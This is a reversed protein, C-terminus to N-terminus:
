APKEVAPKAPSVTVRGYLFAVGGGVCVVLTGLVPFVRLAALGVIMTCAGAVRVVNQDFQFESIQSRDPARNVLCM